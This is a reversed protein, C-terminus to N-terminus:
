LSSAIVSSREQLRWNIRVWILRCDLHKVKLCSYAVMYQNSTLVMLSMTLRGSGFLIFYVLSLENSNVRPHFTCFAVQYNFASMNEINMCLPWQHIVWIRNLISSRPKYTNKANLIGIRLLNIRVLDHVLIRQECYNWNYASDIKTINGYLVLVHVRALLLNFTM